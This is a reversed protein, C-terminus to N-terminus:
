RGAMAHIRSLYSRALDYEMAETFNSAVVKEFEQLAVTRATPEGRPSYFQSMGVYFHVLFATVSRGIDGPDYMDSSADLERESIEGRLFRIVPYPWAATDCRVAAEELIKRAESPQQAEIYGFHAVSVMAVTTLSRWGRLDLTRRADSAAAAGHGLILNLYARVQYNEPESPDRQISHTYDALAKEYEKLRLYANGRDCYLQVDGLDIAKTWDEIANQYRQLEFYAVGRNAYASRYRPDVRIAHTFDEIAKDREGLRHHVVGLNDWPLAEEPRAAIAAKYDQIARQYERQNEYIRGRSALAKHDAPDLEIALNYDQLAKDMQGLREYFFARQTYAKALRPNLRLAAADKQDALQSFALPSGPSIALLM